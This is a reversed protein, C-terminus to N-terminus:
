GLPPGSHEHGELAVAAKPGARENQKQRQREKGPLPFALGVWAKPLHERSLSLSRQAEQEPGRAPWGTQSRAEKRLM